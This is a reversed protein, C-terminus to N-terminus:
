LTQWCWTPCDVHKSLPLSKALVLCRPQDTLRSNLLGFTKWFSKAMTQRANVWGDDEVIEPDDHHSVEGTSLGVLQQPFFKEFIEGRFQFIEDVMGTLVFSITRNFRVLSVSASSLIGSLSSTLDRPPLIMMNMIKIMMLGLWRSSTRTRPAATKVRLPILLSSWDLELHFVCAGAM